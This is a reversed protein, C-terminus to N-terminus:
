RGDNKRREGSVLAALFLLIFFVVAGYIMDWTDPSDPSM